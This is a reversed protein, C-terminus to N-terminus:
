SFQYQRTFHHSTASDSTTAIYGKHKMYSRRFSIGVGMLFSGILISLIYYRAGKSEPSSGTSSNSNMKNYATLTSSGQGVTWFDLDDKSVCSQQFGNFKNLASSFIKSREQCTDSLPLGNFPAPLKIWSSDKEACANIWRGCTTEDKKQTDFLAAENDPLCDDLIKFQVDCSEEEETLVLEVVDLGRPRTRTFGTVPASMATSSLPLSPLTCSPQRRNSLFYILAAKAAPKPLPLPIYPCM